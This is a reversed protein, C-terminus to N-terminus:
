PTARPDAQAALFPLLADLLGAPTEEMPVHGCGPITVLRADGLAAAIREGNRPPTVTDEGGWVVLTPVRIAALDVEAPPEGNKATLGYYADDIGEIRLRDLVERAVAPTALSDDFYANALGKRIYRERMAVTRLYVHTVARLNAARSRRDTSYLPMATDVLALSRLREPHHAALWLALAGGYSHGVVHARDVGLADLVGLVLRQQGDLTYAAPDRPRDTYGFGNLDVAIVHFREALAPAVLRWTFTSEGFGHLLLVPDGSGRQEVHVTQGGVVLLEAAPVRSHIVARPQIAVCGTLALALPIAAAAAALRGGM